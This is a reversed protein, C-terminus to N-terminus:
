AAEARDLTAEMLKLQQQKAWTSRLAAAQEKKESFARYRAEQMEQAVYGLVQQEARLSAVKEEEISTQKREVQGDLAHRIAMKVYTEEEEDIEAGMPLASIYRNAPENLQLDKQVAKAAAKDRVQRDLYAKMEAMRRRQEESKLVEAQESLYRQERVFSSSTEIGEKRKHM